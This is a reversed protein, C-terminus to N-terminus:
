PVKRQRPAGARPEAAGGRLADQFRQTINPQAIQREALGRGRKRATFRLPDLQRAVQPLFRQGFFQEHEIFRGGAQVRLIQGPQERDQIAQHAGARRNHDHLVVGIHNAGGIPHHVQPRTGPWLASPQEIGPRRCPQRAHRFRQGSLSQPILSSQNGLGSDRRLFLLWPFAM